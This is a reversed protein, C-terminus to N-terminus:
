NVVLSVNGVRTHLRIDHNGTGRTVITSSSGSKKVPVKVGHLTLEARGVDSGVELAGVATRNAVVHVDGVNMTVSAPASDVSATVKGTGTVRVNLGGRIGSADVDANSFELNVFMRPPVSVNWTEGCQDRGSQRLRLALTGDAVTRELRAGPICKERLRKQDTSRLETTVRVSDDTSPVITVKAAGGELSLRNANTVDISAQTQTQGREFLLAPPRPNACALAGAVLAVASVTRAHTVVRTFPAAM